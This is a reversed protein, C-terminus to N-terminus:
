NLRIAEVDGNTSKIIIDFALLNNNKYEKKM